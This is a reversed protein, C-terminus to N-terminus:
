LAAVCFIAIKADIKSEADLRGRAGRETAPPTDPLIVQRVSRSSCSSVSHSLRIMQGAALMLVDIKMISDQRILISLKSDLHARVTVSQTAATTMTIERHM